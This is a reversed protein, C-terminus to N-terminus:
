MHKGSQALANAHPGSARLSRPLPGVALAFSSVYHLPFHLAHTSYALTHAHIYTHSLSLPPPPVLSAQYSPPIFASLLPLSAAAYAAFPRTSCLPFCIPCLHTHSLPLPHILSYPLSTNHALHLSALLQM